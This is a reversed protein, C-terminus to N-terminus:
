DRSEKYLIEKLLFYNPTLLELIAFIGNIRNVTGNGELSGHADKGAQSVSCKWVLGWNENTRKRRPGKV